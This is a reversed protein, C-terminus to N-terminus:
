KDPNTCKLCILNEEFRSKSTNINFEHVFFIKNHPRKSCNHLAIIRQHCFDQIIITKGQIYEHAALCDHSHDDEPCCINFDDILM